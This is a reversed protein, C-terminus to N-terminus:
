YCVGGLIAAMKELCEKRRRRSIPLKAGNVTLSDEQVSSIMGCNVLYSPSVRLFNRFRQDSELSSLKGYAEFDGASTHYILSHNYVEVYYLDRLDIKKLESRSSILITDSAQKKLIRLIRSMKMSFEDYSVPKIIFDVAGVEYGQIAYQAMSTVFCLLVTDDRKRLRKACEMGNLQPMIIDMLIIDVGGRYKQLFVLPNDYCVAEIQEGREEGFRKCFRELTQMFPHEDEVIAIRVMEGGGVKGKERQATEEIM